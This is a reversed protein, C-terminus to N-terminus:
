VCEKEVVYDEQPLDIVDLKSSPGLIDGLTIKKTNENPMDPILEASISIVIFRM